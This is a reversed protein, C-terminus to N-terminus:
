DVSFLPAIGARGQVPEDEQVAAAPAVSQQPTVARLPRPVAGPVRAAGPVSPPGPLVDDRDTLGAPNDIHEAPVYYGLQEPTMLRGFKKAALYALLSFLIEAPVISTATPVFV